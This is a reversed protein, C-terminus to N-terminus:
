NSLGPFSTVPQIKIDPFNETIYVKLDENNEVIQWEGCKNAFNEVFQVRLDPFANVIKVKVDADIANEVLKIKGYLKKDEFTCSDVQMSDKGRTEKKSTRESSITFFSISLVILLNLTKM